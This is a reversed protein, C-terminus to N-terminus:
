TVAPPTMVEEADIPLLAFLDRLLETTSVQRLFVQGSPDDPVTMAWYGADGLDLWTLDGSRHIQDSRDVVSVMQLAREPSMLGAFYEVVSPPAQSPCASRAVALEDLAELEHLSMAFEFGSSSRTGVLHLADFMIDVATEPAFPAWVVVGDVGSQQQVGIDTDVFLTWAYSVEKTSRRMRISLVPDDVVDVMVNIWPQLEPTGENGTIFNKSLLSRRAAILDVSTPDVAVDPGGLTQALDLDISLAALEDVTLEVYDIAGLLASAVSAHDGPLSDASM